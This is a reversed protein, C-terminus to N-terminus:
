IEEEQHTPIKKLCPHVREKEKGPEAVVLVGCEAEHTQSEANSCQMDSDDSGADMGRSKGREAHSYGAAAGDVSNGTGVDQAPGSGDEQNDM